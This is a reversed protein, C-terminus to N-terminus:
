TYCVCKLMQRMMFGWYFSLLIIKKLTTFGCHCSFWLPLTLMTSPHFSFDASCLFNFHLSPLLASQVVHLCSTDKFRPTHTPSNLFDVGLNGGETWVTVYESSGDRSHLCTSKRSIHLWLFESNLCKLTLSPLHSQTPPSDSSEQNIILRTSNKLM